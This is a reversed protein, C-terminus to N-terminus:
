IYLSYFIFFSYYFLFFSVQWEKQKPSYAKTTHKPKHSRHYKMVKHLVQEALLDNEAPEQVDISDHLLPIHFIFHISEYNM